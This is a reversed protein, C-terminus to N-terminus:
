VGRRRELGQVDDTPLDAVAALLHQYSLEVSKVQLEVQSKVKEM